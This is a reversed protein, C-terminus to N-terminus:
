VSLFLRASSVTLGKTAHDWSVHKNSCQNLLRTLEGSFGQFGNFLNYEMGHYLTMHQFIYNRITILENKDEVSELLKRFFHCLQEMKLPEQKQTPIRYLAKYLNHYCDIIMHNDRIIKVFVDVANPQLWEDIWLDTYQVMLKLFSRWSPYQDHLTKLCQQKCHSLTDDNQSLRQQLEDFVHDPLIKNPDLCEKIVLSPFPRSIEQMRQCLLIFAMVHDHDRWAKKIDIITKNEQINVDIRRRKTPQSQNGHSSSSSPLCVDQVRLLYIKRSPKCRELQEVLLKQLKITDQGSSVFQGKTIFAIADMFDQDSSIANTIRMYHVLFRSAHQDNSKMIEQLVSLADQYPLLYVHGMVHTFLDNKEMLALFEQTTIGREFRSVSFDSRSVDKFHWARFLVRSLAIHAETSHGYYELTSQFTDQLIDTAVNSPARTLYELVGDLDAQFVTEMAHSGGLQM